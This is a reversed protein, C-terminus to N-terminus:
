IKNIIKLLEDKQIITIGLQRARTTKHNTSNLDKVVLLDVASTLTPCYDFYKQLDEDRFGSFTVKTDSRKIPANIRINNKELLKIYNQASKYNQLILNIRVVGLGSIDELMEQTIPIKTFQPIAQFITRIIEEGIGEGLINSATLIDEITVGDVFFTDKLKKLIKRSTDVGVGAKIFDKETALVIHFFDRFGAEFLKSIIATSCYKIKHSKMTHLIQKRLQDDTIYKTVINVGDWKYHQFPFSPETGKVVSVITPIVGGSRKMLVISGEGIKNTEIFKANFGATRSITVGSINIPEIIITPVFVGRKSINWEVGLVKSEKMIFDKKLAITHKPNGDEILDFAQDSAVVIGDIETEGTNDRIINDFFDDFDYDGHSLQVLQNFPTLFGDKKLRHFQRSPKINEDIIEYAYFSINKMEQSLTKRNILGAVINRANKACPYQDNFLKLKIILEGRVTYDVRPLDLYRLLHSINQGYRGNGRTLLQNNGYLGSVGDLKFSIVFQDTSQKNVWRQLDDQTRIKNLSGMWYPLQVEGKASQYEDGFLEDFEQDSIIPTGKEYMDVCQQKFM